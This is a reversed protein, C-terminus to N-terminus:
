YYFYNTIQTPKENQQNDLIVTKIELGNPNFYTKWRKVISKRNKISNVKYNMTNEIISYSPLYKAKEKIFVDNLKEMGSSLFRIYASKSIIKNNMDLLVTDRYELDNNENFSSRIITHNNELYKFTDKLLLKFDSAKIKNHLNKETNTITKQFHKIASIKNHSYQIEDLMIDVSSDAKYGELEIKTYFVINKLENYVFKEIAIPDFVDHWKEAYIERILTDKSKKYEYSLGPLGVNYESSIRGLTDFEKVYLNNPIESFTQEIRKIKLEKYKQNIIYYKDINFEQGSCIFECFILSIIALYKM